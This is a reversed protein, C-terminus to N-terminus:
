EEDFDEEPIQPAPTGMTHVIVRPHLELKSNSSVFSKIKPSEQVKKSGDLNTGAHPSDNNFITKKPHPPQKKKVTRKGKKKSIQKTTPVIEKPEEATKVMQEFPDQDVAYGQSYNWFKDQYETECKNM